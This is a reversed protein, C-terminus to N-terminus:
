DSLLYWNCKGKCSLEGPAPAGPKDDNQNYKWYHDCALRADGSINDEGGGAELCAAHGAYCHKECEAHSEGGFFLSATGRNVGADDAPPPPVARPNAGLMVGGRATQTRNAFPNRAASENATIGAYNKLGPSSVFVAMIVLMVVGAVIALAGKIKNGMNIKM